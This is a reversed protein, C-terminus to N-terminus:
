RTPTWTVFRARQGRADLHLTGSAENGMGGDAFIRGAIDLVDGRSRPKGHAVWEDVQAEFFDAGDAHVHRSDSAGGVQQNKRKTRYPGDVDVSIDGLAHRLQELKWHLRVANPRLHHPVPTGDTCAYSAWSFHPTIYGRRDLYRRAAKSRRASRTWPHTIRRRLVPRSRSPLAVAM